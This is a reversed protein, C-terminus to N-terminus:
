GTRRLDLGTTLVVPLGAHVLVDLKAGYTIELNPATLVTEPAGRAILRRNLFAIEPLHAAVGNLDHTTLVIAIGDAHLDALLHLIEHRTHLDVGSTPEDLLLLDPQQLLARALFVRQQQGGSLERIHRRGLGALGLRDLTAEADRRDARTPWPTWRAATRALLVCETVTVPFKWDVSQLQPVYGIRLGSSRVVNGDDVGMTGALVHLLTTKGAGSPGVLGLFSSRLVELGIDEVAPETGYSTWVGELSILRDDGRSM